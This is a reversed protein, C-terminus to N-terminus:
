FFYYIILTNNSALEYSYGGGVDSATWSTFKINLYVDDDVLHLVLDQGVLNSGLSGGVTAMLTDFTLSGLNDTTGLAWETGIPGGNAGNWGTEQAINFIGQNNKRTIWVNDTLRDQNQELTWDAYNAKSFTLTEGTWITQARLITCPAFAMLMILLYNKKM